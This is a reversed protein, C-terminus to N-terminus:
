WVAKEKEKIKLCTFRFPNNREGYIIPPLMIPIYPAYVYGADLFSSGKFRHM